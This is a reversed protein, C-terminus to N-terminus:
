KALQDRNMMELTIEALEATEEPTLNKILAGQSKGTQCGMALTFRKMACLKEAIRTLEKSSM